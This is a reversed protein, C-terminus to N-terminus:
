AITKEESKLKQARRFANATNEIDDIMQDVESRTNRHLGHVQKTLAPISALTPIAEATEAPITERLGRATQLARLEKLARHYTREAAAAYRHLRDLTAALRPDAIADLGGLMLHEEMCAISQSKWAAHLLQNFCIQELAGEPAIEERLSEHLGDFIDQQDPRVVPHSATFGHKVANRSSTAKGQDTRPGSSLRANAANAAAKAPTIV